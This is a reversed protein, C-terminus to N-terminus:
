HMPEGCSLWFRAGDNPAVRPDTSSASLQSTAADVSVVLGSNVAILAYSGDTTGQISFRACDDTPSQATAILPSGDAPSCLYYAGATSSIQASGGTAMAQPLGTARALREAAALWTGEGGQPFVREHRYLRRPPPIGSSTLNMVTSSTEALAAAYVERPSMMAQKQESVRLASLSPVQLAYTGDENDVFVFATAAGATSASATIPQSPSSPASLLLGNAKAAIGACPVAVPPPVAGSAKGGELQWYALSLTGSPPGVSATDAVLYVNHTGGPRPGVFGCKVTTWKGAGTSKVPCSAVPTSGVADLVLSLSAGSAPASVRATLTLGSDTTVDATGFDVSSIKTWSVGGAPYIISRRVGAPAGSEAYVDSTLGDSGESMMVGRVPASFPDVYALQRVWNPTATVSYFHGSTANVYAADIGVNRQYGTSALGRSAALLRTHYAMYWRGKFQVLGHHANSGGGSGCGFPDSCDYPPNWQLPTNIFSYNGLPCPVTSNAPNCVAMCIDQGYHGHGPEPNQPENRAPCMYSMVYKGGLKMLWPAEFSHQMGFVKRPQQVWTAMTSSDLQGCTFGGNLPDTDNGPNACLYVKGDDDRFVTPDDGEIMFTGNWYKPTFDIFPGTISPSFAVGVGDGASHLMVNPWYLYFGGSTQIIQQAWAGKPGWTVTRADFVLGEDSFNVMDVTSIQSYDYMNYTTANALDHSTTIYMTDNVVVPSPDATYRLSFIVTNAATLHLLASAALLATPKAITM